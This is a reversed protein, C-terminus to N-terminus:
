ITTTLLVLWRVSAWIEAFLLLRECILNIDPKLNAFDTQLYALAQQQRNINALESQKGRLEKDKDIRMFWSNLNSSSYRHSHSSVTASAKTSPSFRALYSSASSRLIPHIPLFSGCGLFSVNLLGGSVALAIRTDNIQKDLRTEM